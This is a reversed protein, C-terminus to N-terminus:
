IRDLEQDPTLQSDKHHLKQNQIYNKVHSVDEESVTFAGYGGQWKFFDNPATEHTMLHSSSGKLEKVLRAVPITAHLGVLIHVHDDTGGISIPDCKLDRCIKALVEYLRGTLPDDILPLRDWTSWVLHVYLNTHSRPM